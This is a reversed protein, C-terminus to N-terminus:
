GSDGKTNVNTYLIVEKLAIEEKGSPKEKEFDLLNAALRGFFTSM